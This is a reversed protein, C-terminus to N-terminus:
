HKSKNSLQLLQQALLSDIILTDILRGKIAAAITQAKNEGSAVVVKNPIKQYQAYDIAMTRNEMNTACEKGDKNFFRLMLDGCVGQDILEQLENEQLYGSHGLSSTITPVFAGIGSLSVTIQEFMQYVKVINPEKQIIKVADESRLLGNVMMSYRKGSFIKAIRSVLTQVDIDYDLNYISGHLTVFKTHKKQSPNLLEILYNMTGGWAVGLIDDDRIIRQIYRAGELAASRKIQDADMGAYVPAIIVEKLYYASLLQDHLKVSNEHVPNMRIDIINMDRAAKILRSVTSPSLELRKAVEKQPLGLIYYLYAAQSILYVSQTYLNSDSGVM